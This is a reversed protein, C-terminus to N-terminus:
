QTVEAPKTKALQGDLWYIAERYPEADECYWDPMAPVTQISENQVVALVDALEFVRNRMEDLRTWQSAFEYDFNDLETAKGITEVEYALYARWVARAAHHLAPKLADLEDLAEVILARAEPSCYGDLNFWAPVDTTPETTMTM